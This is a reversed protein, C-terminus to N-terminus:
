GKVDISTPATEKRRKATMHIRVQYRQSIVAAACKLLSKDGTMRSLSELQAATNFLALDAEDAYEHAKKVM